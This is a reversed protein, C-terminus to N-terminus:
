RQVARAVHMREYWTSHLELLAARGAEPLDLSRIYDADEWHEDRGQEQWLIEYEDLSAGKRDTLWFAAALGSRLKSEILKATEPSAELQAKAMGLARFAEAPEGRAILAWGRRRGILARDQDSDARGSARQFLAEAEDGHGLLAGHYAIDTLLELSIGPMEAIRQYVDWAATNRGAHHLADALERLAPVPDKGERRLAEARHEMAEFAEESRGNQALADVLKRLLPSVEADPRSELAAIRERLVAIARGQEGAEWFAAELEALARALEQSFPQTQLLDIRARMVTYAEDDRDAALLAAALEHLPGSLRAPEPSHQQLYSIRDKMAVIADETKGAEELLHILWSMAKLTERESGKAELAEIRENQLAIVAPLREIKRLAAVIEELSGNPDGRLTPDLVHVADEVAEFDILARAYALRIPDEDSFRELGAAFFERAADEDGLEAARNGAALFQDAGPEPPGELIRRWADLVEAPDTSLRAVGKWGASGPMRRYWVLAEERRGMADLHAARMAVWRPERAFLADGQRMRHEAWAIRGADLADALQNQLAASAESQNWPARSGEPLQRQLSLAASWNGAELAGALLRRTQEAGEYRRLLGLWTAPPLNRDAYPLGGAQQSWILDGSSSEFRVWGEAVYRYWDFYQAPNEALTPSKGPTVTTESDARHVRLDAPNKWAEPGAWLKLTRDASATALLKGDPSFVVREVTGSHGPLRMAERNHALDWLRLSPGAGALALHTGAPSFALSRVAGPLSRVTSIIAGTELDWRIVSRDRGGSALERESPGFALCEVADGHGSFSMREAQDALDWLRIAQDSGGSALVTGGPSFAVCLVAAEGAELRSRERTTEVDWLRVTGDSSASALLSGDPSFDVDHVADAHGTLTATPEGSRANWLKITGDSSGTAFVTGDARFALGSIGSGHGRVSTRRTGSEVEWVSVRGGEDGAVLLRGDPSFAAARLALVADPIPSSWLFPKPSSAMRRRAEIQRAPTEELTLFRPFSDDPDTRGTGNAPDRGAEQFGTARAAYFGAAPSGEAAQARLLWGLGAQIEANRKERQARESHRSAQFAAVLAILAVTAGTIALIRDRLRPPLSLAGGPPEESEPTAPERVSEPRSETRSSASGPAPAPAPLSEYASIRLSGRSRDEANWLDQLRSQVRTLTDDRGEVDKRIREALDGEFRVGRLRAPGEIAARLDSGKLSTIRLLNSDAVPYFAEHSRLHGFYDDRMALVLQIGTDPLRALDVLSALFDDRLSARREPVLTFLEELQDIVLLMPPPSASAGASSPEPTVRRFVKPDPSRVQSAGAVGAHVFGEALNAFPNAGPTMTVIRGDPHEERWRPIVGAQLASTKGSAAHGLLFVLPDFALKTLIEEVLKKRGFLLERDTERFARAGVYPSTRPGPPTGKGPSASESDPTREASSAPITKRRSLVQEVLDRANRFTAPAPKAGRIHRAVFERQRIRTEGSEDNVHDRPTSEGAPQYAHVPIGHKRALLWAWQVYSHRQGGRQNRVSEPPENGFRDGFLCIVDDCERLYAEVRDLRSLDDAPFDAETKVEHDAELLRHRLQQLYTGFEEGNASLFLKAM